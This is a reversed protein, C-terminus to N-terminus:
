ASHASLGVDVGVQVIQHELAIGLEHEVLLKVSHASYKYALELGSMSLQTWLAEDNYVTIVAEAFSEAGNRILASRGDCLGIGEAGIDTTVVPLGHAISQVVKGKMGAGFRLPAVFVRSQEFLSRVTQVHGTVVVRENALRQVAPTPEAGALILRVSPMREWVLPMINNALWLAADVNPAHTYNALFLLDARTTYACHPQVPTEVIPVVGAEIGERSLLEREADSTVITRDVRRALDLEVSRLAQWHTVQGTVSEERQARLYHLDVTDYLISASTAERLVALYKQLVDPRSIWAVDVPVPLRRVVNHANGRHPLVEVGLRRVRSAYPEYEGGDDAIFIVHWELDRLLRLIELMRRAGASRDDFPVFSDMVLIAHRGAIRRAAREWLNEDPPYHKALQARWKDAFRERHLEQYRKMGEHPNSGVTAGEFHLVVSDPQYRVRYGNARMRFCFDVDEYYGPAFQLSFGGLERFLDARVMFSASSCYDVDRSFSIGTDSADRGRGYGAASGDRWVVGGAECMTGDPARLQSGAAGVRDLTEFTRLLPTLWGPAVITDNNLFHLYRGRAASAGDNASSVFGQNRAHRIVRIGSCSELYQSTEDTSGDDVVILEVPLTDLERLVANLCTATL